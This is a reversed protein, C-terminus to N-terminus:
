MILVLPPSPTFGDFVKKAGTKLLCKSIISLNFLTKCRIQLIEATIHVNGIRGLVRYIWDILWKETMYRRSNRDKRLLHDLSMTPLHNYTNLIQVFNIIQYITFIKYLGKTDKYM